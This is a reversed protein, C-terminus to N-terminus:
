STEGLVVGTAKLAEDINAHIVKFAGACAGYIRRQEPALSHELMDVEVGEYALARAQYFSLAKLDRAVIETAGGGGAEGASVFDAGTEFRTGGTALLGLRGAYALSPVTIAIAPPRCM